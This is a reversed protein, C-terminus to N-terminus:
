KSQWLTTNGLAGQSGQAGLAGQAGQAVHVGYRSSMQQM